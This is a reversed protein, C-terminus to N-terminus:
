PIAREIRIKNDFSPYKFITRDDVTTKYFKILMLPFKNTVYKSM